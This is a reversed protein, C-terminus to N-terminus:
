NNYMEFCPSGQDCQVCAYNTDYCYLPLWWDPYCTTVTIVFPDGCGTYGGAAAPTASSMIGLCALLFVLALLKRRLKSTTSRSM